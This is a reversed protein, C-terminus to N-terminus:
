VIKAFHNGLKKCTKPAILIKLCIPCEILKNFDKNGNTLYEFPLGSNETIDLTNIKSFLMENTKKDIEYSSSM